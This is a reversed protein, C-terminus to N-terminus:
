RNEWLDLCHPILKKFLTEYSYIINHNQYIEIEDIVPQPILLSVQNQSMEDLTNKSIKKDITALYFRFGRAGETAIQRWRERVTRKATVVLTNQPAQLYSERDPIIFDPKGNVVAQFSYPINCKDFLPKLIHEFTKGARSKRAQSLSLFFKDYDSFHEAV